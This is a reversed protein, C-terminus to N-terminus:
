PLYFIANRESKAWKAAQFNLKQPENKKLNDTINIITKVFLHFKSVDERHKKLGPTM